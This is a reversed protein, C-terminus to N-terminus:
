SARQLEGDSGPNFPLSVGGYGTKILVVDTPNVPRLYVNVLVEGQKPTPIDGEVVQVHSFSDNMSFEDVKVMKNTSPAM